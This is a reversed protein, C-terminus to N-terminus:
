GGPRVEVHARVRRGTTDLWGAGAAYQVMAAFGDPWAPDGTDARSRLEDVDLWVHDGDLEGLPGLAAQWGDGGPASVRLDTLVDPAQVTVTTRDDDVHVIV